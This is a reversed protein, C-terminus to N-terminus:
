VLFTTKKKEQKSPKKTSANEAQEFFNEVYFGRSDGEVGVEQLRM